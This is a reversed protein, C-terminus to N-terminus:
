EHCSGGVRANLGTTADRSMSLHSAAVPQFLEALRRNKRNIDVGLHTCVGLARPLLLLSLERVPVSKPTSDLVDTGGVAALASALEAKHVHLYIRGSSIDLPYSFFTHAVCHRSVDGRHQADDRCRRSGDRCTCVSRPATGRRMAAIGRRIAVTGRRIAATGCMM